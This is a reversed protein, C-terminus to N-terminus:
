AASKKHERLLRKYSRKLSQSSEYNLESLWLWMANLSKRKPKLDPHPNKLQRQYDAEIALKAAKHLPRVYDGQPNLALMFEKILLAKEDCNYIRKERSM